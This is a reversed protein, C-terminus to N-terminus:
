LKSAEIFMTDLDLSTLGLSSALGILLENDRKFDISYEWYNQVIDKQMPDQIADIEVQVQALLGLRILQERAQRVTISQPVQVDIKNMMDQHNSTVVLM